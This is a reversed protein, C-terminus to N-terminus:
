RGVIYMGLVYLNEGDGALKSFQLHRRCGYAATVRYCM